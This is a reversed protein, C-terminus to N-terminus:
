GLWYFIAPLVFWLVIQGLILGIGNEGGFVESLFLKGKVVKNLVLVNARIEILFAVAFSLINWYAAETSYLQQNWWTAVFGWSGAGILGVFILPLCGMDRWATHGEDNKFFLFVIALGVMLGVMEIVAQELFFNWISLDLTTQNFAILLPPVFPLAFTYERKATAEFVALYMTQHILLVVWGLMIILGDAPYNERM